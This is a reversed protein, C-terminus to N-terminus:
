MGSKEETGKSKIRRLGALRESRIGLEHHTVDQTAPSEAKPERIQKHQRMGECTRWFPRNASNGVM